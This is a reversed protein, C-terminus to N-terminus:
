EPVNRHREPATWVLMEPMPLMEFAAFFTVLIARTSAMTACRSSPVGITRTKGIVWVGGPLASSAISIGGAVFRRSRIDSRDIALRPIDSRQRRRQEALHLAAEDFQGPRLPM